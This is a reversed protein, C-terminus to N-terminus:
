GCVTFDNRHEVGVFIRGASRMQLLIELVQGTHKISVSEFLSDNSAVAFHSATPRHWFRFTAQSAFGSQLRKEKPQFIMEIKVANLVLVITLVIMFVQIYRIHLRHTRYQINLITLM